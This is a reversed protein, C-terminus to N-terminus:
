AALYNQAERSIYGKISLVRQIFAKVQSEIMQVTLTRPVKGPPTMPPRVHCMGPPLVDIFTAQRDTFEIRISKRISIEDDPVFSIDM